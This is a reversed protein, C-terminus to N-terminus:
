DHHLLQKSPCGSVTRTWHSFILPQHIHSGFRRRETYTAAVQILFCGNAQLNLPQINPQLVLTSNPSLEEPSHSAGSPPTQAATVKDPDNNNEKDSHFLNPSTSSTVKKIM